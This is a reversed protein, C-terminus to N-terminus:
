PHRLLKSAASSFSLMATGFVSWTKYRHGCLGELALSLSAFIVVQPVRCSSRVSQCFKLLRNPAKTGFM